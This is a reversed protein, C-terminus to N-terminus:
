LHKKRLYEFRADGPRSVPKMAKHWYHEGGGDEENGELLKKEVLASLSRLGGARAQRQGSAISEKSLLLNKKLKM